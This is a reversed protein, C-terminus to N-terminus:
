HLLLGLWSKQTLNHHMLRKNIFSVILVSSHHAKNSCQRRHSSGETATVTKKVGKEVKPSDLQAAPTLLVVTKPASRTQSPTEKNAKISSKNRTCSLSKGGGHKWVSFQPINTHQPKKKIKVAGGKQLLKNSKQTARAIM